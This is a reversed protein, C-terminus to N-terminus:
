LYIGVNGKKASEPLENNNWQKSMQNEAKFSIQKNNCM